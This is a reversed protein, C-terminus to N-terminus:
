PVWHALHLIFTINQFYTADDQFLTQDDILDYLESSAYSAGHLAFFILM